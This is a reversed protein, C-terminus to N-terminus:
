AEGKVTVGACRMAEVYEPFSMILDMERELYLHYLENYTAEIIKGNEIKM